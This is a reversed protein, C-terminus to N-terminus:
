SEEKKSLYDLILDDLSKSKPGEPKQAHSQVSAPQAKPEKSRDFKGSILERIVTKHQEKMMDRVIEKLSDSKLIDQYSSKRMSQIAGSQFLHTTIVPNKSGGDETQIHYTKGNYQIDTNLGSIM